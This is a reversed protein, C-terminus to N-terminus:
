AKPDYTGDANVYGELECEALGFRKRGALEKWRWVRFRETRLAGNREITERFIVETVQLGSLWRVFIRHTFGRDTQVGDRFTLSGVPQVDARLRQLARYTEIIGTDAYEPVQRREAIYIPWRLRGVAVSPDEPM